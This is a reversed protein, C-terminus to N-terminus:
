DIEAVTSEITRRVNAVVTEPDAYYENIMATFRRYNSIGNERLYQLVLKRDRLETLLESQSWGHDRRIEELVDSDRRRFADDSADWSFATTYDM